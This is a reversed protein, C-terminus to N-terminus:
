IEIRIGRKWVASPSLKGQRYIIERYDNTSFAAIDATYGIKLIGCHNLKLAMAARATIAALTEAISLKEYVGIISAQALLHGMPASGPNWDSAIAVCAGANLLKRAPAFPLGLGISAGPLAVAVTNSRALDQITEEDSVELHDASLAENEVALKGGGTSFQDGHVLLDFGLGRAKQLYTRAEDIGFAADDVFIDIRKALKETKVQPLLKEVLMNLYENASGNFDKPCIHAALCTPILQAKTKANNIARLMKLEDNVTLGYGSKVEITTIGDRLMQNAHRATIEELTILDAERTSHVTSWIGGGQKAIEVYTKGELRQAYDNIRSGAWCIHTHADIFGPLVIQQGEIHEIIAKNNKAQTYLEDYSGLAEIKENDIIIGGDYIIHLMNDNISGKLPLKDMTIIQAFPGILKM